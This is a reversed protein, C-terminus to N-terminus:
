FEVKLIQQDVIIRPLNKNAFLLNVQSLRLVVDHRKEGDMRSSTYLLCVKFDCETAEAILQEIM